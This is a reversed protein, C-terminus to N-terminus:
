SLVKPYYQVSSFLGAGLELHTAGIPSSYPVTYTKMEDSDSIIVIDGFAAVTEGIPTASRVILTGQDPRYWDGLPLVFFDGARTVQSDGTPIYSTVKTGEELQFGSTKFPRDSQEPYKLVGMYVAGGAVRVWPSSVRYLGGGLDIITINSAPWGGVVLSFDTTPINSDNIVPAGGSEFYVYLSFTYQGEPLNVYVKYALTNESESKEILLGTGGPLHDFTTPSVAGNTFNADSLGNPFESFTLLNTSEFPELLLGSYGTVPDTVFRPENIGFTKLQGNVWGTAESGRECIVRPDLMTAGAFRLDLTPYPGDGYLANRTATRLADLAFPLGVVGSQPIDFLLSGSQPIDNFIVRSDDAPQSTTREWTSGNWAYYGNKAPDLDNIVRSFKPGAGPPTMEAFTSFITMGGTSMAMDATLQAANAAVLAGVEVGRWDIGLAVSTIRYLGGRAYFFAYGNGDAQVMGDPLPQSTGPSAWMKALSQDAENRVTLNALPQVNGQEDVITSQWRSLM